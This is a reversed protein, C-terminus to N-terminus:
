RIDRATRVRKGSTGSGGNEARDRMRDRAAFAMVSAALVSGTVGGAMASPNFGWIFEGLLMGFLATVLWVGDWVLVFQWTRLGLMWM